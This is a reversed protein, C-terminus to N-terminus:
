RRTYAIIGQLTDAPDYYTLLLSEIEQYRNRIMTRSDDYSDGQSTYQDDMEVLILKPPRQVLSRVLEIRADDSVYSPKFHITNLYRNAPQRGTRWYIYPHFGFIFISDNSATHTVVFNSVSDGEIYSNAPLKKDAISLLENVRAQLPGPSTWVYSLVVMLIGVIWANSGRPLADIRHLATALHAVGAGILINLWPLAIWYHYAYGKNQLQVVFLSLAAALGLTLLTQYLLSEYKMRASHDLSWLSWGIVAVVLWLLDLNQALTRLNQELDFSGSFNSDRYSITATSGINILDDLGGQGYLYLVQLGVSLLFGGLVAFVLRSHNTKLKVTSIWLMALALLLFIGNTYKFFVTIGIAFGALGAKVMKEKRDVDREPLLLLVALLIWPLSYTEPQATNWPGMIYYQVITLLCTMVASLRGWPTGTWLRISLEFLLAITLLANFYDFLRISFVSEGFIGFAASFAYFINPPKIDWFDVYPIAGKLVASGGYAFTGQDYAFDWLLSPALLIASGILTLLFVTRTSLSTHHKDHSRM